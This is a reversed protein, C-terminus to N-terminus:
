CERLQICGFGLLLTRAASFPGIEKQNICTVIRPAPRSMNEGNEQIKHLSHNVEWSMKLTNISSNISFDDVFNAGSEVATWDRERGNGSSNKGGSDQEVGSYPQRSQQKKGEPGGHAVSGGAPGSFQFDWRLLPSAAPDWSSMLSYNTMQKSRSSQPSAGSSM